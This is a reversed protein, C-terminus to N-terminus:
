DLPVVVVRNGVVEVVRVAVGADLYEGRSVVDVRREGLRATGSPRCPSLTVGQAGQLEIDRDDTARASEFSLGEVVMRKGFPSKPFLKMGGIIAVPVAIMAVLVFTWGTSPDHRFAVVVGSVIATAALVALIGFSPFLVEAIILALGVGLLLIPLTM